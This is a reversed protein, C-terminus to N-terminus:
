EVTIQVKNPYFAVHGAIEAVSDYPETYGWIADEITGEPTTISHYSADGKYPCHTATPLVM